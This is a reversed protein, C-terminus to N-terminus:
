FFAEPLIAIWVTFIKLVLVELLQRMFFLFAISLTDFSFRM